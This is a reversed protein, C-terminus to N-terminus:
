SPPRLGGSYWDLTLQSEIRALRNWHFQADDLEHVGNSQVTVSEGYRVVQRDIDMASCSWLFQSTESYDRHWRYVGNQDYARVRTNCSKRNPHQQWGAEIWTHLRAGAGSKIECYSFPCRLRVTCGDVYHGWAGYQGFVGKTAPTVCKQTVSTSTSSSSYTANPVDAMAAQSFGGALAATALFTTIAANFPTTFM